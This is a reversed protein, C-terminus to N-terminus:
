RVKNSITSKMDTPATTASSTAPITSAGTVKSTIDILKKESKVAIAKNASKEITKSDIANVKVINNNATVSSMTTPKPKKATATTTTPLKSSPNAMKDTPKKNEKPKRVDKMFERRLEDFKMWNEPWLKCLEDKLYSEIYEHEKCRRIGIRKYSQRRLTVIDEM